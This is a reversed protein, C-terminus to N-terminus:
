RLRRQRGALDGGVPRVRPPHRADAPPLADREAMRPRPANIVRVHENEFAVRHVGPDVITSDHPNRAVASTLHDTM